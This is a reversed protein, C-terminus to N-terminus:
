INGDFVAHSIRYFFGDIFYLAVVAGVITVVILATLRIVRSASPWEVLKLEDVLGRFFGVLSSEDKQSLGVGMTSIKSLDIEENVSNGKTNGKTSSPNPESNYIGTLTSLTPLPLENPVLKELQSEGDPQEINSEQKQFKALMAPSDYRRKPRKTAPRRRCASSSTFSSTSFLAAPTSVFTISAPM